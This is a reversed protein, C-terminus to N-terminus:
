LTCYALFKNRNLTLKWEFSLFQGLNCLLITHPRLKDSTIKCFHSYTLEKRQGGFIRQFDSFMITSYKKLNKTRPLPSTNVEMTLICDNIGLFM